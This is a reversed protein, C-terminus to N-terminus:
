VAGLAAPATLCAEFEARLREVVPLPTHDRVVVFGDRRLDVLAAELGPDVRPARGVRIKRLARRREDDARRAGHVFSELPRRALLRRLRARVSRTARTM